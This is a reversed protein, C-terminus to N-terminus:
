AAISPKPLFLESMEKAAKLRSFNTYRPGQMSSSTAGSFPIPGIEQAPEEFILRYKGNDGYPEIQKVAAYHTIASVPTTRYAAIYKIKDLMGGGIRIAYWCHEGLFVSQFGDSLAPVIITDRDDVHDSEPELLASSTVPEPMEFVRVGLLPFIRLLERLFGETDAKDSEALRPERPLNGNDLHCRKAKDACQLLAHELWTIHARNLPNGKSVFAYGWDWFDKQKAHADIRDGIEEGQGVYVTPLDDSTGEDFGSLIYVGARGFEKRKRVQSWSSRPFAILM